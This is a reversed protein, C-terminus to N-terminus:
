TALRMAAAMAAGRWGDSRHVGRGEGELGLEVILALAACGEFGRL